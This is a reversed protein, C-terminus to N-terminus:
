GSVIQNSEDALLVRVIKDYKGMSKQAKALREIMRFGLSVEAVNLDNNNEQTFALAEEGVSSDAEVILLKNKTKKQKKNDVNSGDSDDDGYLISLWQNKIQFTADKLVDQDKNNLSLEAAGWSSPNGYSNDPINWFVPVSLNDSHDRIINTVLEPNEYIFLFNYIGFRDITYDSVDSSKGSMRIIKEGDGQIQVKGNKLKQEYEETADSFAFVMAFIQSIGLFGAFTSRATQLGLIKLKTKSSNTSNLYEWPKKGMSKLIMEAPKTAWIISSFIQQRAYTFIFSPSNYKKRPHLLLFAEFAGIAFIGTGSAILGWFKSPSTMRDFALSVKQQYSTIHANNALIQQNLRRFEQTYPKPYTEIDKDYCRWMGYHLFSKCQEIINTSNNNTITSPSNM